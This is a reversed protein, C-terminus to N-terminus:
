NALDEVAALPVVGELRRARRRDRTVFADGQLRTIAALETETTIEDLGEAEAIRWAMDRSGRDNLLRVKVETMRVVLEKAVRRDLEGRRVAAYLLALVESRIAGHAVLRHGDDVTISGDAIGLLVDADIVFRTM